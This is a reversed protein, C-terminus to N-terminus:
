KIFKYYLIDKEKFCISKLRIIEDPNGKFYDYKYKKINFNIKEDGGITNENENFLFSSKEEIYSNKSSQQIFENLQSPLKM